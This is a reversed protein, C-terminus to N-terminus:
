DGHIAVYRDYLFANTVKIPSGALDMDKGDIVLTVNLWRPAGNQDLCLVGKASIERQAIATPRLEIKYCGGGVGEISLASSARLQMYLEIVDFNQSACRGSPNCTVAKWLNVAVEYGRVNAYAHSGDASVVGWSFYATYVGARLRQLNDVPPLFTVALAVTIYVLANLAAIWRGSSM